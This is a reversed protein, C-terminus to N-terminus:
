TLMLLWGQSANSIAYTDAIFIFSPSLWTRRCGM